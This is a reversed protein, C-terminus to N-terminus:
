GVVDCVKCSIVDHSFAAYWECVAEPTFNFSCVGTPNPRTRARLLAVPFKMKASSILIMARVTNVTSPDGDLIGEFSKILDFGAQNIERM